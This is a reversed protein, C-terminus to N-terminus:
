SFPYPAEAHTTFESGFTKSCVWGYTPLQLNPIKTQATPLVANHVANVKRNRLCLGESVSGSARGDVQGAVWVRGLSINMMMSHM